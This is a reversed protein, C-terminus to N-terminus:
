LSWGSLSAQDVARSTHQRERAAQCEECLFAGTLTTETTEQGCRECTAAPHCDVCYTEGEYEVLFAGRSGVGCEFCTM